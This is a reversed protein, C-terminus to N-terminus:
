SILSSHLTEWVGTHNENVFQYFSNASKDRGIKPAMFKIMISKLIENDKIYKQSHENNERSKRNRKARSEYPYHKNFDRTTRYRETIDNYAFHFSKLAPFCLNILLSRIIYYFESDNKLKNMVPDALDDFDHLWRIQYLLDFLSTMIFKKYNGVEM